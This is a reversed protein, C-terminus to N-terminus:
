YPRYNLWNAVPKMIISPIGFRSWLEHQKNNQIRPYNLMAISCPWQFLSNEWYVRHSEMAINTMVLPYKRSSEEDQGVQGVSICLLHLVVGLQASWGWHCWWTQLRTAQCPKSHCFFCPHNWKMLQAQSLVRPVKAQNVYMGVHMIHKTVPVPGGPEVPQAPQAPQPMNGCTASPSGM